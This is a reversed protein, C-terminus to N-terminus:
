DLRLIVSRHKDKEVIGVPDPFYQCTWANGLPGLIGVTCQFQKSCLKACEEPDNKIYQSYGLSLGKALGQVTCKRWSAYTHARKTWRKNPKGCKKRVVKELPNKLAGKKGKRAKALDKTCKDLKGPCSPDTKGQNTQCQNLDGKCKTLEGPCSPDTNGQNTQCQSLDGKCKTLEGTTTTQDNRCTNLNGTCTNLDGNCKALSSKSTDDLPVMALRGLPPANPDPPPNHLKYSYCAGEEGWYSGICFADATDKSCDNACEKPSDGAPSSPFVVTVEKGCHLTYTKGSVTVPQKDAQPCCNAYAQNKDSYLQALCGEGPQQATTTVSLIALCLLSWALSSM